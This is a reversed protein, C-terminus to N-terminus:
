TSKMQCSEDDGQNNKMKEFAIPDLERLLNESLPHNRLRRLAKEKIAQINAGSVKFRKGIERQTLHGEGSLGFVLKVIERQRFTLSKLMKDIVDSTDTEDEFDHEPAPLYAVEECRLSLRRVDVLGTSEMVKKADLFDRSRIAEPFLEELTKGTLKLLKEEIERVRNPSSWVKSRSSGIPPAENMAIWGCLQSYGVGLHEALLKISGMKRSAALLDAHKARVQLTVLFRQESADEPSRDDPLILETETV